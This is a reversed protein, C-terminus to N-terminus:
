HCARLKTLVIQREQEVEILTDVLGSVDVFSSGLCTSSRSSRAAEKAAGELGVDLPLAVM